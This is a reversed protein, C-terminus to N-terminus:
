VFLFIEMKNKYLILYKSQSVHEYFYGWWLKQPMLETIPITERQWAVSPNMQAAITVPYTRCQYHDQLFYFGCAKTNTINCM